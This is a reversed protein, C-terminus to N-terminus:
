VFINVLAQSFNKIDSHQKYSTMIYPMNGRKLDIKKSMCFADLKCVGAPQTLDFDM